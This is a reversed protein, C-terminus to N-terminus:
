NKSSIFTLTDVVFRCSKQLDPEDFYNVKIM